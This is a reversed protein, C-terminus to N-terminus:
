VFMGSIITQGGPLYCLGCIWDKHANNLSRIVEGNRLNWKKICTDRSASFLTDGQLALSEIGDYHPPELSASPAVVGGKGDTVNFVKITHDKSGTIVYDGGLIWFYSKCHYRDRPQWCSTGLPVRM